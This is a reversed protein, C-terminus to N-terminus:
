GTLFCINNGCTGYGISNAIRNVSTHGRSDTAATGTCSCKSAVSCSISSGSSIQIIDIFTQLVTGGSISCAYLFPCSAPMFGKHNLGGQLHNANPATVSFGIGSSKATQGVKFAQKATGTLM